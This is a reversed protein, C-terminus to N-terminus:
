SNPNYDIIDKWVMSQPACSCAIQDAESADPQPLVDPMAAITLDVPSVASPTWAGEICTSTIVAPVKTADDVWANCSLFCTEGEPVQQTYPNISGDCQWNIASTADLYEPLMPCNKNEACDKPGSNCLGDKICADNDSPDTCAELLYCATGGRATHITFHKCTGSEDNFCKDQCWTMKKLM